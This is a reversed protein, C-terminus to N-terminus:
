LFLSYLSTAYLLTKIFICFDNDTYKVSINFRNKLRLETECRRPM